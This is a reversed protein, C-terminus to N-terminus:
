QQFRFHFPRRKPNKANVEKNRWRGVKAAGIPERTQETQDKSSDAAAEAEKKNTAKIPLSFPDVKSEVESSQGSM